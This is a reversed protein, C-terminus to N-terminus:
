GRTRVAAVEVVESIGRGAATGDALDAPRVLAPRLGASALEMWAEFVAGGPGYQERPDSAPGQEPLRLALTRPAPPAYDRRADAVAEAFARGTATPLGDPGYLGLEHELDHFDTFKRDVAHSSWWTVGWLPACDLVNRVTAHVFSRVDGDAILPRPAGVEQLWLPRRPDSRHAAALQVLYEAHREVQESGSGYRQVTGNFVWSHVATLDGYGGVHDPTFPHGPRYFAADYTSHVHTHDPAGRRCAELLAPLWATVEEQSTPFETTLLNMENGLTIGLFGPEARLRAAVAHLVDQQGAIVDPDAFISRKHRTSIWAPIFEFGSMHGQLVDVNTDLGAAHARRVLAALDDLVKGDVFSRNPQLHPWLCFLRLHDLGLAAMQDFDRGAAEHDLHYWGYFWDKSPTYNAGFRPTAAAAPGRGGPRAASM